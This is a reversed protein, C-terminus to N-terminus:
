KILKEAIRGQGQGLSIIKLREAFGQQQALGILYPIPDAGASLIFIIPQV